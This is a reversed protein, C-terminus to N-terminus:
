RPQQKPATEENPPVKKTDTYTGEIQYQKFEGADEMATDDVRASVQEAQAGYPLSEEKEWQDRLRALAVGVPVGDAKAQKRAAVEQAEKEIDKLAQTAQREVSAIDEEEGRIGNRRVQALLDLCEQAFKSKDPYQRIDTTCAILLNVYARRYLGVDPDLRM